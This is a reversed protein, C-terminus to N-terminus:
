ATTGSSRVGARWEVPSAGCAWWVRYASGLRNFDAPDAIELRPMPTGELTDFEIAPMLNPDAFAYFAEPDIADLRPEVAIRIGSFPNVADVSNPTIATALSQASTELSAPVLVMAPALGLVTTGDLAKQLRMQARIANLSTVGLVGADLDNNHHAANFLTYGDSMEATLMATLILSSKLNVTAFAIDRLSRQIAGMNDNVMVQLTVSIGRAYTGVSLSEGSEELTGFTIEGSEAVPLMAPYSSLKGLTKTRFDPMTGVGAIQSVGSDAAKFLDALSKNMSDGLIIPFDSTSHMGSAMVFNPKATLATRVLSVADNSAPKMGRANLWAQALGVTTMGAFPGTASQGKLKASFADGLAKNFGEPDGGADNGMVIRQDDRAALSTIILDKATDINGAAKAVIDATEVASLKASAARSLIDATVDAPPTAAPAPAAPKPNPTPM